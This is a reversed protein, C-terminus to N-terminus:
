QRRLQLDAGSSRHSVFLSNSWRNFAILVKGDAGTLAMGDGTPSWGTVGAPLAEGCTAPASASYGANGAKAGGLTVKCIDAGGSSLSWTGAAEAPVLPVGAEHDAAVALGPLCTWAFAAIALHRIPDPNM